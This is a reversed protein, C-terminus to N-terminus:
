WRQAEAAAARPTDVTGDPSIDPSAFTNQM